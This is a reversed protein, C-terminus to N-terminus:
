NIQTEDLHTFIDRIEGNSSLVCGPPVLSRSGALHNIPGHAERNERLDKEDKLKKILALLQLFAAMM